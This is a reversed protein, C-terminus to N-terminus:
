AKQWLAYAHPMGGQKKCPKLLDDDPGFKYKCGHATCRFTLDAIDRRQLVDQWDGREVFNWEEFFHGERQGIKTDNCHTIAKDRRAHDFMCVRKGCIYITKAREHVANQHRELDAPRTFALGCSPCSCSHTGPRNGRRRPRQPPKSLRSIQRTCRQECEQVRDHLSTNSSLSSQSSPTNYIHTVGSQPSISSHASGDTSSAFSLRGFRQTSSIPPTNSPSNDFRPSHSSGFSDEETASYEELANAIGTDTTNRRHWGASFALGFHLVSDLDEDLSQIFQGPPSGGLLHLPRSRYARLRFSGSCRNFTGVELYAHRKRWKWVRRASIWRTTAPHVWRWDPENAHSV